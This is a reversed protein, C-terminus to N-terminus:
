SGAKARSPVIIAHPPRISPCVSVDSDCLPYFTSRYTRCACYKVKALVMEAIREVAPVTHAEKDCSAAYSHDASVWVNIALRKSEVEHQVPLRRKLGVPQPPNTVDFVTPVAKWILRQRSPNVFQNQEFHKDCLRCNKTLYESSYGILDARRCNLVWRKCRDCLLSLM